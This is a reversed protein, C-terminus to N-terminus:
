ELNLHQQTHHPYSDWYAKDLVLDKVQTIKVFDKSRFTPMAKDRSNKLVWVTRPIKLVGQLFRLGPETIWFQCSRFGNYAVLGFYHLRLAQANDALLITKQSEEDLRDVENKNRTVTAWTHQSRNIRGIAQLMRIKAKDLTHPLPIPILQGCHLCFERAGVSVKHLSKEKVKDIKKAMRLLSGESRSISDEAIGVFRGKTRRLEVEYTGDLKNCRIIKAPHQVWDELLVDRYEGAQYM